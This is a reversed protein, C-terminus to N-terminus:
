RDEAPSPRGITLEEEAPGDGMYARVVTFMMEPVIAHPDYDEGAQLRHTLLQMISGIAYMATAKDDGVEIGPEERARDILDGCFIFARERIVRAMEIKTALVKMMGFVVLDPREEMWDATEYAAARLSSRWDPQLNFASGIRREYVAVFRDFSDVLCEEFGSFRSAFEEPKVAAREIIGAVGADGDRANVEAVVALAIPDRYPDPDPARPLEIPQRL